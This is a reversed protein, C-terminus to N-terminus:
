RALKATATKDLKCNELVISHAAGATNAVSFKGGDVKDVNNADAPSATWMTTKVSEDQSVFRNMVPFSDRWMGPTIAEGIKLQAVVVQDGKIGYMATINQNQVKGNVSIQCTYAVEKTRDIENNSATPAAHAAFTATALAIATITQMLKMM